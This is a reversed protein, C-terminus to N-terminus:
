STSSNRDSFPVSLSIVEKELVRLEDRDQGMSISEVGKWKTEKLDMTIIDECRLKPGKVWYVKLITIKSPVKIDEFYLIDSLM